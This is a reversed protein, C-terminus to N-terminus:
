INWTARSLFSRCGATKRRIRRALEVGSIKGMEIDLLLLDFSRDEEYRFLFAEASPFSEIQLATQSDEAWRELIARLYDIDAQNDDCIALRYM